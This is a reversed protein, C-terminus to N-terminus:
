ALRPDVGVASVGDSGYLDVRVGLMCARRGVAHHTALAVGTAMSRRFGPRV